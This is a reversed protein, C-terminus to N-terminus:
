SEPPLGPQVTGSMAVLGTSGQHLASGSGPHLVVLRASIHDFVLRRGCGEITCEFLSEAGNGDAPVMLHREGTMQEGRRRQGLLARDTAGDPKM